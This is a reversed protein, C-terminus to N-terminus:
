EEVIEVKCGAKSVLKDVASGFLFSTFAAKKCRTIIAYDINFRAIKKLALETYEGEEVFAQCPIGLCDALWKIEDLKKSGQDRYEKIIAHTLESSPRDGLFGFDSLKNVVSDSVSSDIIFLVTLNAKENKAKDIALEIARDVQCTTTLVLLINKM